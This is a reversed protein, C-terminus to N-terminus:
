TSNDGGGDSSSPSHDVFPPAFSDPGKDRGGGPFFRCALLGGAVIGVVVLHVYMREVLLYGVLLVAAIALISMIWRLQTVTITIM